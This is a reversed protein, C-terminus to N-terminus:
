GDNERDLRAAVPARTPKISAAAAVTRAAATAVPDPRVLPQYCLRPWAQRERFETEALAFGCTFETVARRFYVGFGLQFTRPRLPRTHSESSLM